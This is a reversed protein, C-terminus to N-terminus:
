NLSRLVLGIAEEARGMGKGEENHQWLLIETGRNELM